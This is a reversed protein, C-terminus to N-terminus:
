GAGTTPQLRQLARRLMGILRDQDFLGKQMMQHNFETLRARQETTLDGGTLVIVPLECWQPDARMTELLTFGDMEPM